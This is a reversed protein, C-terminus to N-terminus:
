RPDVPTFRPLPINSCVIRVEPFGIVEKRLRLNRQVYGKSVKCVNWVESDELAGAKALGCRRDGPVM